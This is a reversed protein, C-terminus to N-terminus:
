AWAVASGHWWAVAGRAEFLAAARRAWADDGAEEDGGAEDARLAELALPPAPGERPPSPAALPPAALERGHENPAGPWARPAPSPGRPEPSPARPAPRPARPKSPRTEGYFAHTASCIDDPM